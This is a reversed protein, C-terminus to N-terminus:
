ECRFIEAWTYKLLVFISLILKQFLNLVFIRLLRFIFMKDCFATVDDFIDSQSTSSLYKRRFFFDILFSMMRGGLYKPSKVLPMSSAIKLDVCSINLSYFM